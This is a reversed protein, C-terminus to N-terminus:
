SLEPLLSSQYSVIGPITSLSKSLWQETFGLGTSFLFRYERQSGEPAMIKRRSYEICRFMCADLIRNLALDVGARDECRLTVEVKMLDAPLTDNLRDVKRWVLVEPFAPVNLFGDGAWEVRPRESEAILARHVEESEIEQMVSAGRILPRLSASMIWFQGQVRISMDEPSIDVGLTELTRQVRHVPDGSDSLDLQRDHV